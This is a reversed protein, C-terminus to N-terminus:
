TSPLAGVAGAPATRESRPTGMTPTSLATPCRRETYSPALTDREPKAATSWGEGVPEYAPDLRVQDEQDHGSPENERVMRNGPQVM